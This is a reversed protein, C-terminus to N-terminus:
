GFCRPCPKYGNAEALKRSYAWFSKRSFASCGFKHYLGTKDNDVFVVYSDMFKSKSLFLRNSSALEENTATLTEVSQELAENEQQLAKNEQTARELEAQQTTMDYQTQSVTSQASSFSRQLEEITQAQQSLEDKADLLEQQTDSLSQELVTLHQEREELDSERLRLSVRQSASNALLYLKKGNEECWKKAAKLKSLYYNYERRLYYSDFWEAIYEFGDIAGIEMNISARVEISPFNVKLFKAILPSTTTVSGLKYRGVLEEVTDGISNFFARSQAHRGYCNGNLLLNAGLGEAVYEDLDEEMKRQEFKDVVVGRGSTFGGWPFYIETIKGRNEIVAEKLDDNAQYGVTFKM